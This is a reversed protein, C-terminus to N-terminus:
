MFSRLVSLYKTKLDWLCCILKSVEGYNPVQIPIPKSLLLIGKTCKNRGGKWEFPGDSKLDSIVKYWNESQFIEGILSNTELM